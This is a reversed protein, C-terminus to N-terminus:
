PPTPPGPQRSRRRDRISEYAGNVLDWVAELASMAELLAGIGEIFAAILELM